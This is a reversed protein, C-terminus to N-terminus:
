IDILRVSKGLEKLTKTVLYKGTINNLEEVVSGYSFGLTVSAGDTSSVSRYVFWSKTEVGDTLLVLQSTAMGVKGDENLVELDRFTVLLALNVETLSDTLEVIRDSIVELYPDDAAYIAFCIVHSASRSGFKGKFPM